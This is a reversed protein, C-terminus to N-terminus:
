CYMQKTSYFTLFIVCLVNSYRGNDLVIVFMQMDLVSGFDARYELPLSLSRFVCVLNDEFIISPWCIPILLLSDALAACFLRSANLHIWYIAQHRFM